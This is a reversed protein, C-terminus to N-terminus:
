KSSDEHWFDFYNFWNTPAEQCLSELRAAYAQVAERIHAERVAPDAIRESFDALVEFRVDYQGRGQHEGRYLGVMFIVRRRLLAALRLPGDTFRAPRGLFPLEIWAGRASEAPLMRDGLIGALGGQNMWDRIALTSEPRGLAIIKLPKDPVLAQLAANIKRANDPYMVMAVEMDPRSRGVASLVEFSGLHAGMLFAGRGEELTRDLSLPDTIKLDFADMHGRLLYVRDLVTTAFCHFHRYVDSWRAPRGLARELYRRAHRRPMPAALVFYLTIPHLLVRTWRRGLTVALSCMLRLALANSREKAVLWDQAQASAPPAADPAKDETNM